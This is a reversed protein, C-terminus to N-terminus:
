NRVSLLSGCIRAPDALYAALDFHALHPRYIMATVLAVASLLAAATLRKGFSPFPFRAKAVTAAESEAGRHWDTATNGTAASPAFGLARAVTEMAMYLQGLIFVALACCAM